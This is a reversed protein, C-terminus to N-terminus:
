SLSIVSQPHMKQLDTKHKNMNSMTLMLYIHSLNLFLCLANLYQGNSKWSIVNPLINKDVDKQHEKKKEKLLLLWM